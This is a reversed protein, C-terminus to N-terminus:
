WWFNTSVSTFHTTAPIPPLLIAFGEVPLNVVVSHRFLPPSASQNNDTRSSLIDTLKKTLNKIFIDSIIYTELKFSFIGWFIISMVCVNPFLNLKPWKVCLFCYNQKSICYGSTDSLIITWWRKFLNDFYLHTALFLCMKLKINEKWVVDPLKVGLTVEISWVDISVQFKM